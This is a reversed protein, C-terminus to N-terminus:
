RTSRTSGQLVIEEKAQSPTEEVDQIPQIHGDEVRKLTGRGLVRM